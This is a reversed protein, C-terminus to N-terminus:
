GVCLCPLSSVRQGTKTAVMIDDYINGHSAIIIEKNYKEKIYKNVKEIQKPVYKPENGTDAYIIYDPIINNIKGALALLVLAISQTGGGFSIVHIHNKGDDYNQKILIKM